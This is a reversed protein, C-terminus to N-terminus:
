RRVGTTAVTPDVSGIQEVVPTVRVMDRTTVKGVFWNIDLGYSKKSRSISTRRDHSSLSSTSLVNTRVALEDTPRDVTDWELNMTIEELKFELKLTLKGTALIHCSGEIL